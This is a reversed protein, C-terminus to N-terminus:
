IQIYTYTTPSSILGLTICLPNDRKKMSDIMEKSAKEGKGIVMDMLHRAMDTKIKGKGTVFDKDETSLLNQQWLDDLLGNIVPISVRQVFESYIRRLEGEAGEAQTARSPAPPSSTTSSTPHGAAQTARSTAPPSSTTSSTPHGAAQTARSPAPPSSTTSSTPHGAAQTARSPAPTSSTAKGAPQSESSTAPPSSRKSSPPAGSISCAGLRHELSLRPSSRLDSTGEAAVRQRSNAGQFKKSLFRFIKSLNSKEGNWDDKNITASWLLEDCDSDMLFLRFPPREGFRAESFGKLALVETVFELKPPEINREPESTLHYFKEELRCVAPKVIKICKKRSKNVQEEIAQIESDNNSALFVHFVFKNKHYKNLEKYILVLAHHKMKQSEPIIPALLCLSSVRWKFHSATFDVTPEIKPQRGKVHLVRFSLELEPEALCLSHPFHIFQLVSPDKNVVHVDYISGAPRWSDPLFESFKSWSLVSYQVLAQESVEFVLGTASCEYTGEGELQVQFSWKSIKTPTVKEYEPSQQSAQCKECHSKFHMEEEDEEDDEDIEASADSDSCDEEECRDMLSMSAIDETLSTGLESDGEHMELPLSPSMLGPSEKRGFSEQSRGFRFRASNPTLGLAWYLEPHRRKLYDVMLRSAREGKRMVTDILCRARDERNTKEEVTKMEQDNLVDMMRLYHLLDIVDHDSLWYILKSRIRGHKIRASTPTLGLTWCLDPHRETLYDVMLSRGREGKKMVTDILCRAGDESTMKEEVTKKEQDNLVDMKRLYHLLDIVDDDSLWDILESRIRRLKRRLVADATDAVGAAPTSILGLTICFEPDMEKMCDIMMQSTREGKAMVSDILCRAQDKRNTQNQIVSDKEDTTFMKKQWLEDLLSKILSISVRRIFDGYIRKLEGEAPQTASSPAPPSSTAQAVTVQIKSSVQLNHSSVQKHSAGVEPSRLDSTGEGAVRQRSNAWQFKRSTFRFIKSLNSKEGNCDDENITASWLPEDYDSDMLFLRFPPREGFRAVSFDKLALVETVFELKPPELIREPESTLHYFKEELRCNAPMYIMICKKRSKNVQEKIAQIESDNNSALFVHFVFKNKHYKNLEMYILVLAHHKMKQSEPIIPALLCLSSVRWKFHSATFDVTPEIKPQRGKVHLVRFSLELEPEALCLSHPFHIFQLVSPDKNVVHVDYISGAPRWSDPLFESFKSWSLVSYRVLAQESVEFVLGTASCEYTGEGELQVQFSWKSIKTPTVKEYEPSQQSAKCKECHSKFHMEEEDEEDDEDIEASADSDSGDEEECRDMLSMSAIDETLSTGLESDGEHMELPLSPSMLGPSEKRSFSEQSRGFRFRASNPTLGLAWYLEPHRRKLYDVMLRSAREGKRMVTDILCRARDERNTKEEVTKMEQDNLVDMMRLYHLLDIVDHDSLWYILKSRIRGHKIRASTPTLGLTWCLDPHRETLYDVMLSRGREGKKMVTDILCRAGDESTMKEEVTKKEQDNLVDMKRLYHLLDIVDDDSLWDILESRIRRLKIRASTPTLGLTWCLDPCRETLYDVMLSSAREGKEMVTDILCRAGDESTMKEEVTKMEQDNLVNMKRLYHLLAIVDGDSLRDILESRIRGLKIRASTPTLGLTWCLDPHKEKLYDFMLSSAGEGKKMVTDILCRARDESAMKGEVTKMEQDNLVDMMRLYHLLAIVDDDSLRDILESRIRGLEELLLRTEVPLDELEELGRLLDQATTKGQPRRCKWRQLMKYKRMFEAIEENKIEDLDENKLGLHIAAQEWEQGLTNAVDQLQEDSLDPGPSSAKYDRAAM